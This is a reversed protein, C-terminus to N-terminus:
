IKVFIRRHYLWWSVALWFATHLVAHLFSGWTEGFVPVCVGLYLARQLTVTGGDAQHIRILGLTRVLLGSGLFVVLPNSGFIVAPKIGRRWGRLDYVWSSFALVMMALGGTLLVYSLSWMQKNIPELTALPVGAVVLGVGAAALRKLKAALDGSTRLHEGALFGLLTTLVAPLTSLLGDPDFPTTGVLYMHSATLIQLDAWRVLNDALEFSGAGWGAVLPLRMLLEYTAALTGMVALRGWRGRILVVTLGAALYCLAIRQLVGMIRLDALSGPLGTWPFGNLFLGCAFIIVTRLAIKRVLDARRAGAELRRAFSLSIAVGVIFLFFPFVLDTPTLGHWAAHRLPPHIHAWSGPNNVLIMLAVTLGRFVDLSVLREKM